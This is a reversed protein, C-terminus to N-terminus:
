DGPARRRPRLLAIIRCHTPERPRPVAFAGRSELAERFFEKFVAKKYRDAVPHQEWIAPDSAVAYLTDFDGPALPRLELLTGILTPQLDIM